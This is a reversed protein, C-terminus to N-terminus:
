LNNMCKANLNSNLYSLFQYILEFKNSNLEQLSDLHPLEVKSLYTASIVSVRAGGLQLKKYERLLHNVWQM